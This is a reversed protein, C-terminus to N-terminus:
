DDTIIKGERLAQTTKSMAKKVSVEKYIGTKDDFQLVRGPPNQSFLSQLISQAIANKEGKAHARTYAEKRENVWSRFRHNGPHANVKGGRGCILDHDHPEKIPVGTAFKKDDMIRILLKTQRTESKFSPLASTLLDCAVSQIALTLLSKIRKDERRNSM